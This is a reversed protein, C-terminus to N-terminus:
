CSTAAAWGCVVVLLVVSVGSVRCEGCAIFLKNCDVNACNLHPLLARGGCMQCPVAAPLDAIADTGAAPTPPHMCALPTPPHTPPHPPPAPPAPPRPTRVCLAAHTAPPRGPSSCVWHARGGPRIAMRADFVYLSGDWCDTFTHPPLPAPLHSPLAPGYNRALPPPETLLTGGAAGGGGRM